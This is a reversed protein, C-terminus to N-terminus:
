ICCAGYEYACNMAAAIHRVSDGFTRWESRTDIAHSELVLGCEQATCYGPDAVHCAM